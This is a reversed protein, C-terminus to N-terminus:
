CDSNKIRSSSFRYARVFFTLAKKKNFYEILIVM